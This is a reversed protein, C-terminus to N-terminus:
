LRYRLNLSPVFNLIENGPQFFNNPDTQIVLWQHNYSRIIGLQASFLLNKYNWDAKITTSIDIWHRRFDQIYEFAYYYYDSNYRVREFQIGVKKLGKIWTRLLDRRGSRTKVQM